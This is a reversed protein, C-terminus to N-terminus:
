AIHKHKRRDILFKPTRDDLWRKRLKGRPRVEKPLLDFVGSDLCLESEERMKMNVNIIKSKIHDSCCHRAITVGDRESNAVLDFGKPCYFLCELTSVFIAELGEICLSEKNNLNRWRKRILM